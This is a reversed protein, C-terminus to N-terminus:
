KVMVFCKQNEVKIQWHFLLLDQQLGSADGNLVM